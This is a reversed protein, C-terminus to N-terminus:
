SYMQHISHIASVKDDAYRESYEKKWDKRNMKLKLANEMQRYQMSM